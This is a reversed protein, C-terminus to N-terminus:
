DPVKKWLWDLWPKALTQDAQSAISDRRTACCVPSGSWDGASPISTNNLSAGRMLGLGHVAVASAPRGDENDEQWLTM